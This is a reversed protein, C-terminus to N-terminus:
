KQQTSQPSTTGAMQQQTATQMSKFAMDAIKVWVIAWGPAGVAIVAIAVEAEM